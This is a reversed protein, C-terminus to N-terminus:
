LPLSYADVRLNRVEFDLTTVELDFLPPIATSPVPATNVGSIYSMSSISSTIGIVGALTYWRGLEVDVEVAPTTGQNAAKGDHFGLIATAAAILQQGSTAELVRAEGLVTFAHIGLPVDETLVQLTASGEVLETPRVIGDVLEWAGWGEELHFRDLNTEDRLDFLKTRRLSVRADLNGPNGAPGPQTTM